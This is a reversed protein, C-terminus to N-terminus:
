HLIIGILINQKLYLMPVRPADISINDKKYVIVLPSLICAIVYNKPKCKHSGSCFKIRYIVQSKRKLNLLQKKGRPKRSIRFRLCVPKQSAVHSYMDM